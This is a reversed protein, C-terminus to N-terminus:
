DVTHNTDKYRLNGNCDFYVSDMSIGNNRAQRIQWSMDEEM